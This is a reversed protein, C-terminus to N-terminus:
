GKKVDGVSTVKWTGEIKEVTLKASTGGWGVSKLSFHIYDDSHSSKLLRAMSYLFAPKKTEKDFVGRFTSDCKSGPFLGPKLHSLREQLAPSPDKEDITLFRKTTTDGWYESWPKTSLLYLIAAEFVQDLESLAVREIPQVSSQGSDSVSSHSVSMDCNDCGLLLTSICILSLYFTRM